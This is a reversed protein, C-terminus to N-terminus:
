ATRDDNRPFPSETDIQDCLSASGHEHITDALILRNKAATPLDPTSRTDCFILGALRQAHRRFVANRHIGWRCVASFWRKKESNM